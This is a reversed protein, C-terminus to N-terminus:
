ILIPGNPSTKGVNLPNQGPVGHCSLCYAKMPLPTFQRIAPKGNLVAGADYYIRPKKKIEEMVASEWDDPMNLKNRISDKTRTFKIKLGIGKTALKASLQFAFTAPIVGKFGIDEDEFLPKNHEMVEIMTEILVRKAFHDMEPFPENYKQQYTNKVNNIFRIGLMDSKDGGKKNILPQSKFIFEMSSMYIKTIDGIVGKMEAGKDQANSTSTLCFVALAMTILTVEICKKLSDSLRNEAM